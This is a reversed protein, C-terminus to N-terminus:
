SISGGSKITIKSGMEVTIKNADFDVDLTKDSSITMESDDKVLVDQPAQFNSAMECDANVVFDGPKTIDCPPGNAFFPLKPIIIQYAYLTFTNEEFVIQHGPMNFESVIGNNLFSQATQEFNTRDCFSAMSIDVIWENTNTDEGFNSITASLEGADQLMRLLVLKPYNPLSLNNPIAEVYNLKLPGSYEKCSLTVQQETKIPYPPRTYLVCDPSLNSCFDFVLSDTNKITYSFAQDQLPINHLTPVRDNHLTFSFPINVYARNFPHEFELGAQDRGNDWRCIRDSTLPTEWTIFFDEFVFNENIVGESYVCCVEESTIIPVIQETITTQVNADCFKDFQPFDLSHSKRFGDLTYTGTSSYFPKEFQDANFIPKETSIFQEIDLTGTATRVFSMDEYDFDLTTEFTPSGFSTLIVIPNLGMNDQTFIFDWQIVPEGYTQLINDSFVNLVLDALPCLPEPSFFDLDVGFKDSNVIWELVAGANKVSQDSLCLLNNRQYAKIIATEAPAFGGFQILWENNAGDYGIIGITKQFEVFDNLSQITQDDTQAMNLHNGIAAIWEGLVLDLADFDTPQVAIIANIQIIAQETTITSSDHFGLAYNTSILSIIVIALIAFAIHNL